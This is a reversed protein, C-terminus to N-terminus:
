NYFLKVNIMLILFFTKIFKNKLKLFCMRVVIMTARTMAAVVVVTVVGDDDDGGDHNDGKWGM